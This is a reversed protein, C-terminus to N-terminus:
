LVKEKLQKLERLLEASRQSSLSPLAPM